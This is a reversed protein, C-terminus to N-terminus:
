SKLNGLLQFTNTGALQIIFAQYNQGKIKKMSSVSNITTGSQVFTVDGTGQQIFGVEINNQLGSPITINIPTAGNNIFITYNNDNNVITYSTNIVKQLNSILDQGPLGQIGQDGRPITFNFVADTDTGTNTIIVDSGAVGTTITGLEITASEGPIGQQGETSSPFFNFERLSYDIGFTILNDPYKFSIPLLGDVPEDERVERWEWRSEEEICYIILGQTYTFALQENIGLNALTEENVVYTKVDLPIQTTVKLGTVINNFDAM